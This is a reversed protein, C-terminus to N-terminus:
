SPRGLLMSVRDRFERPTFPKPLGDARHGLTELPEEMYDKDGSILLFRANVCREVLEHALEGGWKGPMQMDVVALRLDSTLQDALHLAEAPSAAAHVETLGPARRTQLMLVILERVDPDDDVM